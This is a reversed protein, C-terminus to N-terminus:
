DIILKCNLNLVLENNFYIDVDESYYGNQDSYCPIFLMCGSDDGFRFGSGDVSEFVLNDKFETTYALEEIQEFDAYNEECCDATHGYRIDMGNDFLIHKNNVEVIKM